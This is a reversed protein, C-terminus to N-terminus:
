SQRVQAVIQDGQLWAVPMFPTNHAVGVAGRRDLLILGGEGKFKQELIALAAQAAAQPAREELLTVARFTLLARIIGEGLGTACAAGLANDAWGGAGPLPSDGVRGALKGRVGGTSVAVAVNGLADLAVAGVTDGDASEAGPPAILTEPPVLPIGQEAAFREAGEAVLLHHPTAEMVRRALSIPNKVRSVAAVAGIRFNGDMILADMQVQGDRNLTSGYGANFLPDDELVRTALEVANLASDGERLRALGAAVAERCRAMVAEHNRTAMLGAGGHVVLQLTM